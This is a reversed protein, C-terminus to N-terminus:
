LQVKRGRVVITGALLDHLARGSPNIGAILFGLGLTIVTILYGIINRKIIGGLRLDTGDFNVITIGAIMKGITQGRLLPFLVFNVVLMIAGIVWIFMSISQTGPDGFLRTAILWAIPLAILIMYDICFAACRLFFPAKLRGPSFDVIKDAETRATPILNDATTAM